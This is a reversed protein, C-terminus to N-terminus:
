VFLYGDAYLLAMHSAYASRLHDNKYKQFLVFRVDPAPFNVESGNRQPTCPTEM